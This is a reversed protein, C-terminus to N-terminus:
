LMPSFLRATAEGLRQGLPAKSLERPRVQRSNALDDEFTAALKSNFTEGYIAACIEFNLRFSRNDMNASGVISLDEDVVFTKAHVFRPGYEFFQVGARMLEPFYSRAAMDVLKSDGAHPLIVRVDVGRLAATALATVIPEDPVFYPTVLWVRRRASAIASFMLKHIAYVDSDPGSAVVQVLEEGRGNPRRLYASGQVLEDTAFHWDEMFIRCLPRVASGQLRVHTDRWARPGRVEATQDSSVNMGGTFGVEGDCVLIKRHTRFNTYRARLRTLSIPNFWAVKAGAAVLPALFADSTDYAGLWDLLLRVEVGSSAKKALADRFRTGTEDADWIYFEAHVHHTAAEIAELMARYCEAGETYLDIREARLPAAEGAGIALQALESRSSDVEDELAALGVAVAKQSAARRLRRRQFRRPGFLYYIPIGVAPLWALTVIWAVTALPPRRELIIYASLGVVWGTEAITLATWFLNM